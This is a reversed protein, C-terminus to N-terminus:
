SALLDVKMDHAGRAYIKNGVIKPSFPLTMRWAASNGPVVDVHSLVGVTEDADSPGYDVVVVMNDAVREVNFGDRTALDVLYALAMDIGIGFPQQITATTPDLVSPIALFQLLDQILEPQYSEAEQQWQIVSKM